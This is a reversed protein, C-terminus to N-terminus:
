KPFSFLRMLDGIAPANLPRYPDRATAIPNPLNDRSRASIPPLKWNREIFKLLSVHDCYDHDIYGRKAYPSVVILPIRTGDGFFDLAQIYGSDYYGGGEDTTIFIATSSWMPSAQVKGLLDRLFREYLESTSEAPHGSLAEFPRVFSVAPLTGKGVDALFASYNQLKAEEGPIRMISLYGTLPDCLGCYSHYPLAIGDISALTADSGRDGSYYKWSIGHATLLDAITPNSQPPLTFADPGLTRAGASSQKWYMEYNNVLYYHNAACRSNSIGPGHLQELVAAVGPAATDACNVYSGGSYGDETYYNNTGPAPDPNEIQNPYPVAPRGDLATPDTFFAVDGSILAQFNPGTGGMVAQHFNDSIVYQDALAKFLTADGGSSRGSADTYPNMNYFGMSIAGERPNFGGPPPAAGNSGTGITEEVWVFKDMKGGDTEQWMQFFRHAPDGTYAAYPVYRSIQYPGNPLNAPFRVDPVDKPLGLGATTYPQPLARYTGTSSTLVRYKDRDLGMRQAARSFHVGPTGDANVIGLSLLNRVSQGPQPRYTGFLNDFTHNEGVIIIVYRIPTATAREESAAGSMAAAALAAACGVACLRRAPTPTM